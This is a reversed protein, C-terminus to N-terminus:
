QFNMKIGKDNLNKFAEKRNIKKYSFIEDDIMISLDEKFVIEPNKVSIPEFYRNGDWLSIFVIKGYDVQALICYDKDGDLWIEFYDGISYM